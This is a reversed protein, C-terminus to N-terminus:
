KIPVPVEPVSRLRVPGLLGSPLLPSDKTYHRWTTWTIRESPPRPEGRLLWAPWEALAPGHWRRDDPPLQEDGILRNPWLNTVKVRVQNDGPRVADTVDVVFPPRWLVGFSRGNVEVEAIVQVDGLDLYVRRGPALIDSSLPVTKEYTATGSFYKVGPEPHETWSILSDFMIREPAGRGPQFAVSWPGEVPEVKEGRESRITFVRGSSTRIQYEGPQWTLLVVGGKPKSVLEGAPEIVLSFEKETGDPLVLTSNERVTKTYRHGGLTYDVRLEKVINPAPDGAIANSAVVELHNDTVMKQLQQTVDVTMARLERWPDDPLDGYLAREIVLEGTEGQRPLQLVEGERVRAERLEGGVRYRVALTKVVGYAPDGAINNSAQVTLSNNQVMASLQATVDVAGPLETRLLGYVAREIRLEPLRSVDPAYLSRGNVQADTIHEGQRAGRFVVFVAEAPGLRLPIVTRGEKTHYVPAPEIEGTEPHWLEPRKGAVRFSCEVTTARTLGNAVFYVDADELRRHIYRIHASLGYGTVQFDPPLKLEGFVQDLPKGWIVRGAGFRHETVKEGDCDGWLQRAIDQVERDCEPYASLSPSRKPPPGIVTAGGRVLDRVKRAVAPSMWDSEPLVLVAYSMGDPLVIRGDRASLRELLATPGCVDYDYGDPLPPRLGKRGAAGNPAAEGVFYLADAVFLGSQLLHQCRALYDTWARAQEWWTIPWEFHFGHPGMTVGPLLNRDPWPQHCYRHFIFRNV